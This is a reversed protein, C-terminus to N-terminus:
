SFSRLNQKNKNQGYQNKYLLVPSLGLTNITAASTTESTSSEHGINTVTRILSSLEHKGVTEVLEGDVVNLVKFEEHHVVVSVTSLDSVVNRGSLSSLDKLTSILEGDANDVSRLNEIKAQHITSGEVLDFGFSFLPSGIPINVETTQKNLCLGLQFVLIVGRKACSQRTPDSVDCGSVGIRAISKCQQLKQFTSDTLKGCWM